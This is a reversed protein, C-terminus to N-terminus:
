SCSHRSGRISIALINQYCPYEDLFNGRLWANNARSISSVSALCQEVASDITNGGCNILVPTPSDSELSVCTMFSRRSAQSVISRVALRRCLLKLSSHDLGSADAAAGYAVRSLARHINTDSPIAQVHRWVLSSGQADADPATAMVRHPDFFSIKSSSQM